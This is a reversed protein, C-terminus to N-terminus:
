FFFDIFGLTNLHIIHKTRKKYTAPFDSSLNVLGDKKDNRHKPISATFQIM